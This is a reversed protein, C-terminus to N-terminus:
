LILLWCYIAFCILGLIWSIVRLKNTIGINVLYNKNNLKREILAFISLIVVAFIIPSILAQWFISYCVGIGILLFVILIIQNLIWFLKESIAISIGTFLITASLFMQSYTNEKYMFFDALGGFMQDAEEYSYLTFYLYIGRIFFFMGILIEIVSIGIALKKKEAFIKCLIKKM